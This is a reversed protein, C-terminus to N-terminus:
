GATRRAELAYVPLGRKRFKSQYNTEIDDPWPAPGRTVDDATGTIELPLRPMPLGDADRDLLEAVRDINPKFDSKLRFWGGPALLRCLDELFWRAILRNKEHRERPWPDPHNVYVGALTGPEVLDDLYAAHYRIIRANTVGAGRLKRACLVTRKYRLEVGLFDWDRHRAAMGTLFFGNGSGIELHLPAERGFEDRWRGRLAQAESAPLLPRGFERHSLVYPNAEISVLEEPRRDRYRPGDAERPAQPTPRGPAAM